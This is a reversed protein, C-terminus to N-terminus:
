SEDSVQGTVILKGYVITYKDDDIQLDYLYTREELDTIDHDFMVVNNNAGGISIDDDTTLTLVEAGAKEKKVTFTLSKGDLDYASGDDKTVQLGLDFKDGLYVYIDKYAPKRNDITSM